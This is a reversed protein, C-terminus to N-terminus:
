ESYRFEMLYGCSPDVNVRVQEESLITATKGGGGTRATELILEYVNLSNMSIM